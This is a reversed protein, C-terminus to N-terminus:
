RDFNFKKEIKLNRWHLYRHAPPIKGANPNVGLRPPWIAEPSNDEIGFLPAYQADVFFCNPSMPMMCYLLEYGKKKALRDLSAISAGVYANTKTDWYNMPHFDIVMLQPPPFHPNAEILVVKPRYDHIARWVYYDNSDIDIVLLDFNEPVGADEFLLEINGPFVWEEMTTVAKNDGYVQALKAARMPDGEILLGGWGHNLILNRANSNTVGDHAGFAVIYKDTPPIIEFIKEIVGDEGFQSFVTAEAARLDVPNVRPSPHEETCGAVVFFVLASISTLISQVLPGQRCGTRTSSGRCYRDM